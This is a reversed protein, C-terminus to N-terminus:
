VKAQRVRRGILERAIERGRRDFALAEDLNAPAARIGEGDAMNLSQEVLGAIELYGIAEELFASVAIENAANLINTAGGGAALAERALRLAPFRRDDPTEFTLQGLRALDAAPAPLRLRDPWGLCHAIPIKMDPSAMHALMSGDRFAVIGHVISQPHVLVDIKGGELGFLHHAEIIELAKNMMTSSDITIKPGMAWNPHKLAEARTVKALAEEPWRGPDRFPGGSATLIIRDLDDRRSGALAQFIANHESDVPLIRAGSRRATEMFLSGACVLPEKNALALTVGPQLAALAPRLGAAGVMAALVIDPRPERATEVVAEEGAATEIGTGALEQRLLPYAAPDGVVAREVAFERAIAALAPANGGAVVATVRFRDRNGRIVELASGGVSGTAGLIVVRRPEGGAVM